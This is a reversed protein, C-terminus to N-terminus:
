GKIAPSTSLVEGGPGLAQVQVYAPRGPTSISTEFGTKAASAAPAMATTSAGALVQWSAVTTAGNWSAYVITSGGAGAAAAIAPTNTPTGTWKFRYSRYSQSKAPLHANYLVTGNPAYETVYPEAGWGIFANGNELMQLDGQSGAALPQSHEYEAVLTDTKAASNVAIVIGRSQPHVKPVGGNDFVSIDGNPLMQADHQYATATGAGLKLTSHKGGIQATVQGSAESLEYLASTNRSSILITGGPQPDVSNLHFYDFPWEATATTPSAYSSSLSVHDLPHWERRVLHTKLDIEQFVSDTVAGDAPGGVSVLDCRIPNFSTLLATDNPMIRFEHTDAPLGNGAPFKAVQQYSSNDIVEEGQGFGQPPIYGQWWTLVPKGEYQQVQLNTAEVGPPLPDFWVLNGSSEFIMPGDQGVGAYPTVFIDGPSQQPSNAGVTIVPVHMEPRSHFVDLEGAKAPPNATSAVHGIPNEVATTFHFAFPATKGERSVKGHVTVTEGGLFPKDPVFSAGDGQSYAELHGPHSGTRSGRVSIDSLETAPAGVFSIQTEYPADLSDPLPSVAVSTGPLIDSRNLQSPVCQPASPGKYAADEAAIRKAAFALSTATSLVISAALLALARHQLNLKLTNNALPNRPMTRNRHQEEIHPATRKRYPDPNRHPVARTQGV